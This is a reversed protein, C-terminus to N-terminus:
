FDGPCCVVVHLPQCPPGTLIFASTALGSLGVRYFSLVSESFQSRIEVHTHTHTHTHTHARVCVCVCVCWVPAATARASSKSEIGLVWKPSWVVAVEELELTKQYERRVKAPLYVYRLM